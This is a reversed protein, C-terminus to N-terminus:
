GDQLFDVWSPSFVECTMKPNTPCPQIDLWSLLSTFINSRHLLEFGSMFHMREVTGVPQRQMKAPVNLFSSTNTTKRAHNYWVCDLFTPGSSRAFGFNCCWEIDQLTVGLEPVFQPWLITQVVLVHYIGM